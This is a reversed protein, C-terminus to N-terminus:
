PVLEQSTGSPLLCRAQTLLGDIVQDLDLRKEIRVLDAPTSTTAAVPPALLQCCDEDPLVSIAATGIAEAEAIIEDKDRAVLPRLVPLASAQDTTILNALTQSAVQGLSDGTVLAQAGTRAALAAATRLMLRRQAIVQFRGAGATALQRQAAGLAILHLGAPPQYRNLERALAYAKYTSAPSTFPVGSFHVFDCHLGRRMARYAAVPSDFGGSLLALARGSSGVPLGGQGRIRQTSIYAHRAGIEISIETGPSSLNVPLALDHQIRGGITAALQQSPMPFTKDWRRARVAFSTDPQEVAERMLAVCAEAIDELEAPVRAAPQLTRFGIVRRVREILDDLPVPGGVVTVNRANTIWTRGGIGSIAHRLNGRLQAEFRAKNRGKLFVEGHKLLVCDRTVPQDTV